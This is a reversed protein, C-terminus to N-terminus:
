VINNILLEAMFFLSSVKCNNNKHRQGAPCGTSNVIFRVMLALIECLRIGLNTLEM